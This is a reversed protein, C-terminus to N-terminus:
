PIAKRRIARQSSKNVVWVVDLGIELLDATEFIKKISDLLLADFTTIDHSRSGIGILLSSARDHLANAFLKRIAQTTEVEGQVAGLRSKIPKKEGDLTVYEIMSKTATHLHNFEHATAEQPINTSKLRAGLEIAAILQCAKAHGLGSVKLYDSYSPTKTTGLLKIVNKAIRAASTKRGGSGIVVQLLETNSLSSVGRDRLKERPREYLAIEM